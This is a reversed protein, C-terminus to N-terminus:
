YMVYSEMCGCSCMAEEGAVSGSFRTGSSYIGRIPVNNHPPIGPSNWSPSKFPTQLPPFALFFDPISPLSHKHLLTHAEHGTHPPHLDDCASALESLSIIPIRRYPRPQLIPISTPSVLEPSPSSSSSPVSASYALPSITTQAHRHLPRAPLAELSAPSSTESPSSSSPSSMSSSTQIPHTRATELPQPLRLLSNSFPRDPFAAYISRNSDQFPIPSHPTYLDYLHEDRSCFDGFSTNEPPPAYGIPAHDTLDFSSPHELRDWKPTSWAGSRSPQVSTQTILPEDDYLDDMAPDLYDEDEFDMWSNRREQATEIPLSSSYSVSRDYPHSSKYQLSTAQTRSPEGHKHFKPDGIFAAKAVNPYLRGTSHTPMAPNRIELARM